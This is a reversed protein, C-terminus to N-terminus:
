KNTQIFHIMEFGHIEGFSGNLPRKQWKCNRSADVQFLFKELKSAMKNKWFHDNRDIRQVHMPETSATLVAFICYSRNTIHLPGRIQYYYGYRKKLGTTVNNETSLYKIKGAKMADSINLRKASYPCKIEAIIEDPSAALYFNKYDIFIGCPQIEIQLQKEM